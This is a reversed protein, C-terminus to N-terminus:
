KDDTSKPQDVTANGFVPAAGAVDGGPAQRSSAVEKAESASSSEVTFGLDELKSKDDGTLKVPEGVRVVKTQEGADNVELVVETTWNTVSDRHGVLKYYSDAV